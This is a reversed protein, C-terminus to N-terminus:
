GPQRLPHLRRTDGQNRWYSGSKDNSPWGHDPCILIDALREVARAFALADGDPLEFSMKNFHAGFVNRAQVIDSLEKLIPALEVGVSTVPDVTIDRVEVRLAPRLKKDLAPLLDGLTYTEGPKRPVRCQYKLTLHDLMAELIVGAKGCAAQVDPNPVALMAKLLAAEPMSTTVRMGDALRWATLEIFQCQGVQLMGWRYKEKWPRYHTTVVTHRFKGSVRYIMNIVRDVHPEDVSGLVDDLILVTEGPRERLALALFVCLGLTDLHSQSFYAQPPADQGGFEASLKVSARQNPDLPLSIKDLGEGPHVENYLEGVEKAITGILTATFTQREEVCLELAEEVRPLLANLGAVQDRKEEYTTMADMLTAILTGEARWEAEKTAWAELTSDTTGLWPGVADLDSPALQDPPTFGTISRCLDVQARFAESAAAHDRAVGDTTAKALELEAHRRKWMSRATRLEHLGDLRAQVSASLGAINESSRCLPCDDAEPHAHLFTSAQELLELTEESRAEVASTAVLLAGDAQDVADRASLLAGKAASHREVLGSFAAHRQRLQGLADIDGRRDTRAEDLRAQAWSVPNFGKPEGAAEYYSRLTGLSLLEADKARQRESGLSAVLDRLAKESKEFAEIDIFRKIADYRKAPQAEVLELVQKRRLVEVRPRLNAPGIAPKGKVVKGQCTGTSTELDVCLDGPERGLSHWFKTLGSGLGREKLWGIEDRALFELADCITTKGTGNEGYILSLNKSKEFDLRITQTSGRFAKITLSKLAAPASM